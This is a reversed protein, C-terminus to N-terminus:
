GTILRIKEKNYCKILHEKREEYPMDILILGTNIIQLRNITALEAESVADRVNDVNNREKYQKATCGLVIRNILDAENSIITMAYKAVEKFPTTVWEGILRDEKFKCLIRQEFLYADRLPESLFKNIIKRGSACEIQRFRRYPDGSIGIKTAGECEVVYVNKRIKEGCFIHFFQEDTLKEKLYEGILFSFGPKLWEAFYFLLSHHLYTGGYHGKKVKVLDEYKKGNYRLLVEIYEQTPNTKLFDKVLKGFPKAIQTANFFMEETKRLLSVDVTIEKKDIEVVEYKTAM